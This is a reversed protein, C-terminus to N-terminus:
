RKSKLLVQFPKKTMKSRKQCMQQNSKECSSVFDEIQHYRFLSIYVKNRRRKVFAIADHATHNYKGMIYAAVLTASRSIGAVCHILVNTFKRSEEIFKNSLEFYQGINFNERDEAPLYLYRPILNEGHTLKDGRTVTM